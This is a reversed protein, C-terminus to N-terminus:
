VELVGGGRQVRFRQPSFFMQRSVTYFQIPFLTTDSQLNKNNSINTVKQNKRCIRPNNSSVFFAFHCIDATHFAGQLSPYVM